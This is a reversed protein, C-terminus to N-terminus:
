FHIKKHVTINPQGFLENPNETLNYLFVQVLKKILRTCTYLNCTGAQMKARDKGTEWFCSSEIWNANRRINVEVYSIDKYQYKKFKKGNKSMLYQM